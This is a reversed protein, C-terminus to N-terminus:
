ENALALVPKVRAALWGPLAGALLGTALVLALLELPRASAAPSALPFGTVDRLFADIVVQGYVGAIAGTLCGASLMLGAEILLIAQLSARRAGLLRLSALGARRQWVSSSLAAIMAVIAAAALMNAVVRLQGLGGSALQEIRRARTGALSAELGSGRGLAAAVAARVAAADAGRALQVALATPASSAFASAYDGVSMFIVGPPWALNTSTAAVRFSRPGTPTALTLEQGVRVGRAAALQESLVIWGGQALRRLTVPLSGHRLESGLLRREASVPRAIVWVRRGDLVTFSGEYRQVGAVGPVRAIRAAAGDPAFSQVAQNDGPNGVWIDAGATYSRAFSDIGGLLNQRAGGLAISGFLAVAGTAALALCRLTTARLSALALPLVSLRQLREGLRQALALVAAFALPVALVTALALLATAGIAASPAVSWLVSAAALLVLAALALRWRVVAGLANGPSGDQAHIADRARGRRLDLLPVASAAGSALVGGAFALVLEWPEVVTTPSLTFAEALYSTSEHFVSSSLVYGALLGLASAPVGLCLAEFGVMCVVSGRRAGAVRLESIARRREAVTLLMASFALLFGLLAGIAAFLGSALNSPGLAQRLLAVDADARAVQLRGAAVRALGRAALARRGTRTEVFVRSVTRGVGALQQMRALQMVAIQAGSLAGAAESGLVATVPVRYARGRLKLTLTADRAQSRRLGLTRATAVSIGVGRSSLAGIPLTEALGDLVALRLDAGALEIRASRGNAAQLSATEELLPAALKVGRQREVQEVVAESFGEGGRARLQLSAPGVVTRVVRAASSGISSESLIATLVLAVAIAVGVGALLEQPGHSRLRRRYLYVLASPRM